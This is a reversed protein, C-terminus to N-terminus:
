RLSSIQVLTLVALLASFIIARLFPAVLVYCFYLAIGTLGLLFVLAARNKTSSFQESM